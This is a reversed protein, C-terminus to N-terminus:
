EIPEKFVPAAPPVVPLDVVTQSSEPGPLSIRLGVARRCTGTLFHKGEFSSLDINSENDAPLEVYYDHGSESRIKVLCDHIVGNNTAIPEGAITETPQILVRKYPDAGFLWLTLLFSTM